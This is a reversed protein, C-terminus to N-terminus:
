QPRRVREGTGIYTKTWWTQGGDPTAWVTLRSGSELISPLFKECTMPLDNDFGRNGCVINNTVLVGETLKERRMRAAVHGEVDVVLM